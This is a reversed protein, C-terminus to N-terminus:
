SLPGFEPTNTSGKRYMWYNLGSFLMLAILSSYIVIARLPILLLSSILEIAILGILLNAITQRSLLNCLIAGLPAGLAVVPMAAFWYSSVPERFDNFIFVQLILGALANIAMLIVSTPTAIKESIRFLLVMVSFLLIDIGNGVLGSMIGGLIGAFLFLAKTRSSWDSITLNSQRIKANLISLTLAFSGLMVTFSMKIADPPLLPALVSLGLFIGLFGGLSGWLIIRWEVKIGTMWITLSAASMGISQIALSFVKADHPAIQLLKTFVPFAVAGGGVSTGGAITSGFIMTVAIEWHHILHFFANKPGLITLWTIWVVLAIKLTIILKSFPM